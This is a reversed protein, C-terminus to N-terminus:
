PSPEDPKKGPNKRRAATAAPKAPGKRQGATTGAPKSAPESSGNGAAPKKDSEPAESTAAAETGAVTIPVGGRLDTIVPAAPESEGATKTAPEAPPAPAPQPTPTPTLVEPSTKAMTRPQTALRTQSVIFIFGALEDAPLQAVAEILQAQSVGEKVLLVTRVGEPLFQVIDSSGTAPGIVVTAPENAAGDGDAPRASKAWEPTLAVARAPGLRKLGRELLRIVKTYVRRRGCGVVVVTGTRGHGGPQPPFLSRILLGLGVVDQIQTQGLTNRLSLHGVEPLGTLERAQAGTVVPQRIIMLLAVAGAALSMGAILGTLLPTPLSSTPEPQLPVRALEQVAFVGFGPGAASMEEALALAAANAIRAALQPDADRGVVRVLPTGDIPEVDASVPILDEAAFPLGGESVARDAVGGGEFIAKASKPIEDVRGGLEQAIVLAEARYIDIEETSPVFVTAVLGMTFGVIVAVLVAYNRL